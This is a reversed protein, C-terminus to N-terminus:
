SYIKEPSTTSEMPLMPADKSQQLYLSENSSAFSDENTQHEQCTVNLSSPKGMLASSKGNDIEDTSQISIEQINDHSFCVNSTIPYIM